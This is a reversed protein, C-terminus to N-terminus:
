EYKATTYVSYTIFFEATRYEKESMHFQRQFALSILLRYNSHCVIQLYSAMPRRAKLVHGLPSYLLTFNVAKRILCDIQM